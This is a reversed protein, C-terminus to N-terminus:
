PKRERDKGYKADLMQERRWLDDGATDDARVWDRSVARTGHGPGGRDLSDAGSAAAVKNGHKTGKMGKGMAHHAKAASDPQMPQQAGVLSAGAAFALAALLHRKM